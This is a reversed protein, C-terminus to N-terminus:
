YEGNDLVRKITAPFKRCDNWRALVKEGVEFTVIPQAPRLRPSDMSIWEDTTGTKTKDKKECARVLVERDEMDVEIVKSLIWKGDFNQAEITTGPVFTLVQNKKKSINVSSSSSSPSLIEHLKSKRDSASQSAESKKKAASEKADALKASLRKSTKIPKDTSVPTETKTAVATKKLPSRKKPSSQGKKKNVDVANADESPDSKVSAAASSESKIVSTEEKITDSSPTEQLSASSPTTPTSINKNWPFILPMSGPKLM